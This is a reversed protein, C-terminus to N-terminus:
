PLSPAPIYGALALLAADGCAANALLMGTLRPVGCAIGAGSSGQLHSKKKKGEFPVFISEQSPLNLRLEGLLFALLLPNATWLPGEGPATGGRSPPSERPVMGPLAAWAATARGPSRAVGPADRPSRLARPAFAPEERPCAAIIIFGM